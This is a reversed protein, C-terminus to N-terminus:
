FGILDNLFPFVISGRPLLFRDEDGIKKFCELEGEEIVWMVEGEDGTGDRFLFFCFLCVCACLVSKPASVVLGSPGSCPRYLM